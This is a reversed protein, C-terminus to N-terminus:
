SERGKGGRERGREKKNLYRRIMKKGIYKSNEEIFIEFPSHRRSVGNCSRLWRSRPRLQRLFSRLLFLISYFIHVFRKDSKKKRVTIRAWPKWRSRRISRRTPSRVATVSKMLTCYFRVQEDLLLLYLSLSLSLSLSHSPSLPVSYLSLHLLYQKETNKCTHTCLLPLSHSPLSPPLSLSAIKKVKNQRLNSNSTTSHLDSFVGFFNGAFFKKENSNM